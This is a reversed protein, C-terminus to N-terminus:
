SHSLGIRMFWLLSSARGHYFKPFDACSNVKSNPSHRHCSTSKLWSFKCASHEFLATAWVQVQGHVDMVTSLYDILPQSIRPRPMCQLSKTLASGAAQVKHDRHTIFYLLGAHRRQFQRAVAAIPGVSDRDGRALFLARM